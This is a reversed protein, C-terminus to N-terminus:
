RSRTNQRSHDRYRRLSAPCRRASSYRNKDSRRPPFRSNMNFTYVGGCEGGELRLDEWNEEDLFAWEAALAAGEKLPLEQPGPRMLNPRGFREWLFSNIRRHLEHGEEEACFLFYSLLVEEGKKLRFGPFTRELFYVHGKVRHDVIGYTLTDGEMVLATRMGRRNLRALAELDPVLGLSVSEGELILCPSRFVHDAAVMGPRPNLHPTFRYGGERSPDLHALNALCKGLLVGRRAQLRHEVLFCGDDVAKSSTRIELSRLHNGGLCWTVVDLLPHGEVVKRSAGDKELSISLSSTGDASVDLHLM